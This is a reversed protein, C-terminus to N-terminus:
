ILWQWNSSFPYATALKFLISISSQAVDTNSQSAAHMRGDSQTGNSNLTTGVIFTTEIASKSSTRTTTTTTTTTSTRSSDTYSYRCPNQQVHTKWEDDTLKHDWPQGMYGLEYTRYAQNIENAHNMVMSGQAVVPEKLPRGALLFLFDVGEDNKNTTTIVLDSTTSVTELYATHHVPVATGVIDLSGQRVYLVATEFSSPVSHKWSNNDNGGPQIHVHIISMDSMIPAQSAQGAQIAERWCCWSRRVNRTWSSKPVNRTEWCTCTPPKSSAFARYMSGCNISNKIASRMSYKKTCYDPARLDMITAFPAQYDHDLEWNVTKINDITTSVVSYHYLRRRLGIEM